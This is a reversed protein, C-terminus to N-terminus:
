EDNWGKDELCRKLVPLARSVRAHLTNASTDLRESMEEYSIGYQFRLVVAMRVDESLGELCDELASVLRAHELRKIPSAAPDLFDVVAQEDAMFKQLHRRQSKLMDKCRHSAIGMLWAALSSRGQFRDIDRCADIFVRQLTDEALSRDRLIRICFGLVAEGHADMLANIAGKRDGGALLALVDADRLVYEAGTSPSPPPLATM